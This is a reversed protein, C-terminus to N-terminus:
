LADLRKAFGMVYAYTQATSDKGVIRLGIHDYIFIHGIPWYISRLPGASRSAKQM